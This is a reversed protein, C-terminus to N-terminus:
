MARQLKSMEYSLTSPTYQKTLGTLSILIHLLIKLGKMYCLNQESQKLDQVSLDAICVSFYM